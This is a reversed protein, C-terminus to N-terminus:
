ERSSEKRVTHCMHGHFHSAKYKCNPCPSATEDIFKVSEQLDDGTKTESDKQEKEILWRRFKEVEEGALPDSRYLGLGTETPTSVHIHVAAIREGIM